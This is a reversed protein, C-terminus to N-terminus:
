KAIPSPLSLTCCAQEGANQATKQYELEFDIIQKLQAWAAGPVRRGNVFLYPTRDVNLEKGDAQSKTVDAETEKTDICRGLALADMDKGAAWEM